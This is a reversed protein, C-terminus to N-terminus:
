AMSAELCVIRESWELQPRRTEVHGALWRLRAQDEETMRIFEVGAQAGESWRGM